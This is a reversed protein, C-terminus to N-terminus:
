KRGGGLVGCVFRCCNKEVKELEGHLSGECTFGTVFTLRNFDM